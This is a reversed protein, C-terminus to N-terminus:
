GDPTLVKHPCYGYIGIACNCNFCLVRYTSLVPSVLLKRFMQYYGSQSREKGGGGNVHDITLFEHRSEGCCQCKNGYKEIICRRQERRRDRYWARERARTKKRSAQFKSRNQAYYRRRKLKYGGSRNRKNRCARCSSTLGTKSDKRPGFERADKPIKCASCVKQTTTM